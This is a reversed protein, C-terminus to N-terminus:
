GRVRDRRMPCGSRAGVAFPQVDPDADVADDPVEGRDGADCAAATVLRSLIMPPRSMASRRAGCSPRTEMRRPVFVTSMRMATSGVVCPSFTVSRMRLVARPEPKARPARLHPRPAALQERAAISWGNPTWPRRLGSRSPCSSSGTRRRWCSFVGPDSLQHRDLVRDLVPGFPEILDLDVGPRPQREGCPQARDEAGVRVDDEDALDAVLLRRLDRKARRHGAVEHQRRQMRLRRRRRDLAKEVDVDLAPIM